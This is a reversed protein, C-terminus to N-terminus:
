VAYILFPRHPCRGRHHCSGKCLPASFTNRKKVSVHRKQCDRFTCNMSSCKKIEMDFYIGLATGMLIEGVTWGSEIACPGWGVDHPMGFPEMKDMDIGRCWAGNTESRASRIQVRSLFATINQWLSKFKGDKTVRYAWAFSLPLWNISYLLDCVADGNNALLSSETGSTRARNAKYGTDYECYGGSKHSFQLLDDCVRYMWERHANDGTVDYLCALPLILRCLEQTQSHERKTDPYVSMITSLGKLATDLYEAKKCLKYALLLTALYYGNHHVCTFGSPESSLKQALEDTLTYNDTKRIRLGDSGTTSVLFDLARYAKDLYANESLIGHILTPLLVRAVDDQYCINMATTSWRLMGNPAMMKDFCFQQTNKFIESQKGFILAEAMCAGGLEATCDARIAAATQRRGDPFIFHSYGELAGCKGGDIFLRNAFIWEIGDKLMQRPSVAENNTSIAPKLTLKVASDTLFSIIKSVVECWREFPAFEAKVFDALKFACILTTKDAYWLTPLPDCAVECRDHAIPQGANYLLTKIPTCNTYTITKNAREDLLYGDQTQMRTHVSDKVAVYFHAGVSGCWEAYIRKGCKRERELELRRDISLVQPEDSTFILAYADYGEIKDDPTLIDAGYGKLIISLDTKKDTIVALKM